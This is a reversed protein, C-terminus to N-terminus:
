KDQLESEGRGLNKNGERKRIDKGDDNHKALNNTCTLSENRSVSEQSRSAIKKRLENGNQGSRQM